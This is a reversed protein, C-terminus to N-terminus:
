PKLQKLYKFKVFVSLAIGGIIFYWARPGIVEAFLAGFGLAMLMKGTVDLALDRLTLQGRMRNWKEEIGGMM